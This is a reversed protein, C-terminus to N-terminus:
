VGDANLSIVDWRKLRALAKILIVRRTKPDYTASKARPETKLREKGRKNAEKFMKDLEAETYSWKGAKLAAM